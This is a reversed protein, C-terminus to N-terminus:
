GLRRKGVRTGLEAIPLHNIYADWERAYQKHFQELEEKSWELPKSEWLHHTLFETPLHDYHAGHLERLDDPLVYAGEVHRLVSALLGSPLQGLYQFVSDSTEARGLELLQLRRMMLQVIRLGTAQQLWSLSVVDVHEARLLGSDLVSTSLHVLRSDVLVATANCPLDLTVVPGEDDASGMMHLTSYKEMGYDQLPQDDELQRGAFIIRQNSPKVGTLASLLLKFYWVPRHFECQVEFKKSTGFQNIFLTPGCSWDNTEPMEGPYHDRIWGKMITARGQHHLQDRVRDLWGDLALSDLYCCSTPIGM